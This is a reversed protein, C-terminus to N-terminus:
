VLVFFASALSAEVDRMKEEVHNLFIAQKQKLFEVVYLHIEIYTGYEWEFPLVIKYQFEEFDMEPTIRFEEDPNISFGDPLCKNLHERKIIDFFAKLNKSRVYRFLTRRLSKVLEENKLDFM